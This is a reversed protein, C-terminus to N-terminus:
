GTPGAEPPPLPVTGSGYRDPDAVIGSGIFRLYRALDGQPVVTITGQTGSRVDGGSRNNTGENTGATAGSTAAAAASAAPADSALIGLAEATTRGVQDPGRIIEATSAQDGYDRILEGFNVERAGDATQVEFLTDGSIFSRDKLMRELAPQREGTNIFRQMYDRKDRDLYPLRSPDNEGIAAMVEALARYEESNRDMRLVADQTGSGGGIYGLGAQRYRNQADTITTSPLEAATRAEMVGGFNFTGEASGNAQDVFLGRLATEVARNEPVNGVTRALGAQVTRPDIGYRSQMSLAFDHWADESPNPNDALFASVERQLGPINGLVQGFQSRAYDETQQAAWTPDQQMRAATASYSMNNRSAIAMITQRSSLASFDAEDAGLGLGVQAQTILGSVQTQVAETGLTESGAALQRTFIDRAEQASVGAQRAAETVGHLSDALGVLSENGGKAALRVLELSDAVEMGLQRWMRVGFDQAVDRAGRNTGYIDRAGAFLESAQDAGMGGFWSQKFSFMSGRAREAMAEGAGGGIVRTVGANAAIQANAFNHAMNIGQYALGAIGVGAAMRGLGMGSLAGQASELVGQGEAIGGAFNQLGGRIMQNRSARAVADPSMINGASDLTQTAAALRGQAAENSVFRHMGNPMVEYWRGQSNMRLGGTRSAVQDMVVRESVIRGQADRWRPNKDNPDFDYGHTVGRQTMGPGGTSLRRAIGLAARQRLSMMSAEGSMSLPDGYEAVGSEQGSVPSPQGPAAARAFDQLRQARETASLDSELPQRMAEVRSQNQGARMIPDAARLATATSPSFMGPPLSAGLGAATGRNSRATAQLSTAMKRIEDLTAQQIARQDTLLAELGQISNVSGGGVPVPRTAYGDYPQLGYDRFQPGDTPRVGVLPAPPENAVM